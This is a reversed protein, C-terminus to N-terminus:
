KILTMDNINKVAFKSKQTKGNTVVANILCTKGVRPIILIQSKEISLIYRQATSISVKQSVLM